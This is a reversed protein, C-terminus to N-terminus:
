SNMKVPKGCVQVRYFTGIIPIPIYWNDVTVDILADAGAAELARAEAEKTAAKTIAIFGFLNWGWSSGTIDGQKTVTYQNSRQIPVTSPALGASTIVCGSAVAVLLTLAVLLAVALLRAHGNVSRM